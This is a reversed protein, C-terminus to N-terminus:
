LGGTAAFVVMLFFGVGTIFVALAAASLIDELTM